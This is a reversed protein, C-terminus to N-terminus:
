VNTLKFEYVWVWENRQWAGKGYVEDFLAAYAERYSNFGGILDPIYYDVISDNVSLKSPDKCKNRIGEKLCDEDSIQQVRECRVGTIKIFCRAVSQPMFLKNKWKGFGHSDKALESIEHGAYKYRMKGNGRWERSHEHETFDCDQCYPEKIYLVEGVKYRPKFEKSEGTAEVTGNWGTLTSDLSRPFEDDNWLGSDDPQPKVTRRTQTKSGNIVTIFMPGSFLIGKM